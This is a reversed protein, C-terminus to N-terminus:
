CFFNILYCHLLCEPLYIHRHTHIYICQQQQESELNHRVKQSGMSQLGRDMSNELCSDQLPNENGRGPSRQSGTILRWRRCQWLTISLKRSSTVGLNLILSCNPILWTFSSHHHTTRASLGGHLCKSIHFLLPLVLVQICIKLNPDSFNLSSCFNSILGNWNLVTTWDHGVRQSGM